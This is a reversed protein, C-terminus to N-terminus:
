SKNVGQYPQEAAKIVLEAVPRFQVRVIFFDYMVYVINAITMWYFWCHTPGEGPCSGQWGLSERNIFCSPKQKFRTSSTSLGFTCHMQAFLERLSTPEPEMTHCTYCSVSIDVTLEGWDSVDCSTFTPMFNLESGVWFSKRPKTDPPAFPLAWSLAFLSFKHSIVSQSFSTILPRAEQLCHLLTNANSLHSVPVDHRLFFDLVAFASCSTRRGQLM